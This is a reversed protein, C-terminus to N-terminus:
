FYDMTIYAPLDIRDFNEHIYVKEILSKEVVSLMINAIIQFRNFKNKLRNEFIFHLNALNLQKKDDFVVIFNKKIKLLWSIFKSLNEM